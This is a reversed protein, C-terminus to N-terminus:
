KYLFFYQLIYTQFFVYRIKSWHFFMALSHGYLYWYQAYHTEMDTMLSAGRATAGYILVNYIGALLMFLFLGRGTSVINGGSDM